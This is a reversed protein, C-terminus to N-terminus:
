NPDFLLFENQSFMAVLVGNNKAYVTIATYATTNTNTVIQLSFPINHTLINNITITSGPEPFNQLAYLSLHFFDSAHFGQILADFTKPGLNQMIVDVSQIYRSDIPGYEFSELRFISM